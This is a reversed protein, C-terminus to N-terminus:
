AANATFRSIRNRYPSGSTYNVYFYHNTAFNPDVAINMLGNIDGNATQVPAINSLTLFPTPDPQTYPPPLLKVTGPMQAVLMRGDPLFAFSTPLTFQTALIENQFVGPNSVTVTVPTSTTVNGARDRARATLTHTGNAILNTDWAFGYPRRRDEAGAACRRRLVDCRHRRRQRKRERHREGHRLREHRRSPATIAVTPAQTDNGGGVVPTTMDSQIQAATLAVNYIRVDDILGPLVPRLDPRQRDHASEDVHHPQRDEFRERGPDRQRVPAVDVQRVHGRSTDLHEDSPGGDRLGTRAGPWSGAQPPCTAPASSGSLYYNDDGKYIVDTWSSNTGTSEVWAELTMASTLDLSPSDAVTM